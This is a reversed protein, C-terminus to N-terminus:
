SPEHSPSLTEPDSAAPDGAGSAGEGSAGERAAGFMGEVCRVMAQVPLRWGIVGTSAVLIEDEAAGIAHAVSASTAEADAVGTGVGVNAVKNNIILGRVTDGEMRRKTVVVPAGPLRNQTFVGAFSRMPEDTTVCAINM